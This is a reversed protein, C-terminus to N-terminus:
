INPAGINPKYINVITIDEQQIFGKIMIYLRDKDKTIVTKTKFNVKLSILIAVGLKIKNQM